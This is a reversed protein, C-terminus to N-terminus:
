SQSARSQQSNRNGATVIRCVSPIIIDNGNEFIARGGLSVKIQPYGWVSAFVGLV